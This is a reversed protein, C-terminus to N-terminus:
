ASEWVHFTLTAGHFSLKESPERLTTTALTGSLSVRHAGLATDATQIAAAIAEAKQIVEQLYNAPGRGAGVEAIYLLYNVDYEYSYVASGTLGLSKPTGIANTVFEYSPILLPCDRDVISAPVGNLDKIRVGSVSLAAIATAIASPSFSM